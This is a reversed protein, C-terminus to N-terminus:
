IDQGNMQLAAAAGLAESIPVFVADFAVFLASNLVQGAPSASFEVYQRLEDDTLSSYALGLYPYVWEETQNRIDPEQGWVDSLIEGEDMEGAFAGTGAMGHYFALNSNLAGMVNSEILDNVEAFRRLLDAREGGGAQLDGWALRAAAETEEDLLARRAELELMLVRQGLSSAFFAEAKTADATKGALQETLKAAFVSKMRAASYIGAVTAKWSAGGADPFMEDEISVGYDVGESRLVDIVDDIQMTGILKAVAGQDEASVAAQGVSTEALLVSPVLFGLCAVLAPSLLALRPLFHTM